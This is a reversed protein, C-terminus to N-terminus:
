RRRSLRAVRAVVAEPGELDGVVEVGGSACDSSFGDLLPGRGDPAVGIQQGIGALRRDIQAGTPRRQSARGAEGLHEPTFSSHNFSSVRLGVPENLSRTTETAREVARRSPNVVAAHAEVPLRAVETAAWAAAMPQGLTVMMGDSRSFDLIAMAAM